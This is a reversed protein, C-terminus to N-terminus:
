AHKKPGLVPFVSAVCQPFVGFHRRLGRGGSMEARDRRDAGEANRYPGIQLVVVQAIPDIGTVVVQQVFRGFRPVRQGFLLELGDALDSPEPVFYFQFQYLAPKSPQM